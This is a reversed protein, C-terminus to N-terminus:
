YWSRRFIMLPAEEILVWNSDTKLEQIKQTFNYEDLPYTSENKSLVIFEANKVIPFQYISARFALHPVFPSQASVASEKPISKLQEHAKAVAYNRLYHNRAYPRIRSKDTYFVTHDMVRITAGLSGLLALSLLLKQLSSKKIESLAAFVGLSLLAALEMSYHAGIGWIVPNNHFMKQVFVPLMLLIYKPKKILLIGGSLLFLTWFEAKVGDFNQDGSHNQFCLSVSEMPSSILTKSAEFYTTGLISYDFHEYSGSQALSPMLYGTVGFFYFFCFLSAGFLYLGKKRENEREKKGFPDIFAELALVLCIWALFVSMNEKSILLFLLVAFFAGIKNKQHYYFVWPLLAAAVTSSHYDFALANYIGFFFLFHLAALNALKRTKAQLDMVRFVGFAGVILALIQVVLLTYTGFVYRLPSFIMLYGDFHDALLNEPVEKFVTSDNWNLNSYDYIAKNYIGLDLAYTRFNYHNVLSISAFILSFVGSMILFQIFPTKNQNSNLIIM